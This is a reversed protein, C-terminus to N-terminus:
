RRSLGRVGRSQGAQQWDEGLAEPGPGDGRDTRGQLSTFLRRLGGFTDVGFPESTEVVLARVEPDRVSVDVRQDAIALM